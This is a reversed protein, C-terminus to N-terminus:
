AVVEVSKGQGIRLTATSEAYMMIEVTGAIGGAGSAITQYTIVSNTGRSDFGSLDRVSQLQGAHCLRVMSCYYNNLWQSSSTVLSGRDNRGCEDKAVGVIHLGDNPTPRYQPLFVNNVSWQWEGVGASTFNLYRGVNTPGLVGAMVLQDQLGTQYSDNGTTNRHIAYLADLSQAAVSCRATASLGNAGSNFSNTFAYYQKYACEIFGSAAIQEQLALQYMGDGVSICECTMYINSLNFGLVQGGVRAASLRLVEPGALYFRVQMMPLLNTSLFQPAIEGLFGSWEDLVYNAAPEDAAGIGAPYSGMLVKTDSNQKNIKDYLRRKLNHLTNYQLFTQQVTVGGVLVEVRDIISSIDADFGAFPGAAQNNTVAANFHLALSNMNICSNSPLNITVIQNNSATTQNVAQLKFINTNNSTMRRVMYKLNNPFSSM